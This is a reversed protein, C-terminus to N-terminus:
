VKNRRINRARKAYEKRIDTLKDIYAEALQPHSRKMQKFARRMTSYSVHGIAAAQGITYGGLLVNKALDLLILKRADTREKKKIVPVKGPFTSSLYKEAVDLHEALQRTTIERNYLQHKQEETIRSRLALPRSPNPKPWSKPYDTPDQTM